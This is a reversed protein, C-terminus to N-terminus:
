GGTQNQSAPNQDAANPRRNPAEQGAAPEEGPGVVSVQAPRLLRGDMRYGPRFAAKIRQEGAGPQAEYLVAEHLAPDFLEGAAGIREVGLENLAEMLRRHILTVGMAWPHTELDPPRHALAREMEDLLPLLRLVVDGRTRERDVTREEDVRRKFNRFNARERQLLDLLEEPSAQAEGGRENAAAAPAQQDLETM